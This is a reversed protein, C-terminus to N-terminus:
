KIPSQRQARLMAEEASYKGDVVEQVAQAYAGLAEEFEFQLSSVILANEVAARSVAAAQTGAQAEYVPSEALSRRAPIGYPAPQQSLFKVWEWCAEPHATQASIAYARVFGLTASRADRPLPAVGWDMAWRRDRRVGGMESLLGTWMGVKSRHIATGTGGGFRQRSQEETLVAGDRDILSAYWQLADIALPDDLTTHTPNDWDDLLRGGHQYVLSFAFLAPDTVCGFVDDDSHRISLVADVFDDWTWEITPYPVGYRDFLDANYYMVQLDVSAPIAWLKGEVRCSAVARPYFDALYLDQDQEILPTLNLLGGQERFEDMYELVSFVFTDVRGSQLPNEYDERSRQPKREIHIHPYQEHFKAVLESYYVIDSSPFAFSITVPELTPTPTICGVMATLSFLVFAYVASRRRMRSRPIRSGM